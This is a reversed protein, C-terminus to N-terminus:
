IGAQVNITNVQRNTTRLQGGSRYKMFGELEYINPTGTTLMVTITGRDQEYNSFCFPGEGNWSFCADLVEVAEGDTRMYINVPYPVGAILNPAVDMRKVFLNNTTEFQLVASSNVVIKDSTTTQCAALGLTACIAIKINM